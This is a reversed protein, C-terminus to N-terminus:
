FPVKTERQNSTILGRLSPPFDVAWRETLWRVAHELKHRSSKLLCKAVKEHIFYCHLNLVSLRKKDRMSDRRIIRERETGIFM